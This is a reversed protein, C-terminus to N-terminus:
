ALRGETRPAPTLEAVLLTADDLELDGIRQLFGRVQEALSGGTLNAVDLAPETLALAQLCPGVRDAAGFPETLGDSMVVLRDGAELPLSVEEYVAGDLLGPPTGSGAIKDICMGQRVLCVPPLGANIVTARNAHLAVVAVCAYREVGERVLHRNFLRMAEALPHLQCFGRLTNALSGALLAAALGHGSIDVLALIRTDDPGVYFDFFDGGIHRSAVLAGTVAWSPTRMPVAPLRAQQVLAADRLEAMMDQRESELREVSTARRRDDAARIMGDVRAMVIRREVPKTMYDNAGAAFASDIHDSDQSATLMLIPVERCHDLGRIAAVVEPGDMGPMMFDVLILDPHDSTLVELAAKGHEALLVRYGAKSLFAKMLLRIETADDVVLVTREASVALDGIRGRGDVDASKM